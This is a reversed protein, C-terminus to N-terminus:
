TTRNHLIVAVGTILFPLTFLIMKTNKGILGAVLIFLFLVGIGGLGLYTYLKNPQKQFLTYVLLLQGLLPILVLPHMMSAPASLLKTIVDWEIQFLFQENGGGWELYGM